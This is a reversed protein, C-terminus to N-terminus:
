PAPEEPFQAKATDTAKEDMGSLRMGVMALRDLAAASKTQLIDTDATTFIREGTEPDYTSAIVIAVYMGGPGMSGEDAAARELISSRDAGTMGRVEVTVGWEPVTVMEVPIDEISLIQDRLSVTTM